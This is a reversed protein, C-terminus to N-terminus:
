VHMTIYIKPLLSDLVRRRVLLHQYPKPLRRDLPQIILEIQQLYHFLDSKDPMPLGPLLKAIM